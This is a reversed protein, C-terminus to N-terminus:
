KFQSLITKYSFVTNKLRILLVYEDNTIDDNNEFISYNFLEKCLFSYLKNIYKNNNIDQTIINIENDENLIKIIYKNKFIYKYLPTTINYTYMIKYLINKINNFIEIPYLPFKNIIDCLEVNDYDDLTKIIHINYLEVNEM